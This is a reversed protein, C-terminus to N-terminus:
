GPVLKHMAQLYLDQRLSDHDNLDEYGLALGYIRQRIMDLLRHQVKGSQRKDPLLRSLQETLRLRKDAQRVLLVGGDSSVDGGSFSVEIKRKNVLGFVHSELNRKTVVRDKGM